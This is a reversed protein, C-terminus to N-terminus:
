STMDELRLELSRALIANMIEQLLTECARHLTGAGRVTIRWGATETAYTCRVGYTECYRQLTDRVAGELYIDRHLLPGQLNKRPM